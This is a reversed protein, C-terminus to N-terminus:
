TFFYILWPNLRDKQYEGIAFGLLGGFAWSMINGIEWEGVTISQFGLLSSVFTVAFTSFLAEGATLKVDFWDLVVDNPKVAAIFGLSAAIAGKMGGTKNNLIYSAFLNSIGGITIISLITILVGYCHFAFQYEIAARITTIRELLVLAPYFFVTLSIFDKISDTEHFISFFLSTPTRIVYRLDIKPFLPTDYIYCMQLLFSSIKLLQMIRLITFAKNNPKFLEMRQCLNNSVWYCLNTARGNYSCIPVTNFLIGMDVGNNGSSSSSSSLAFLHYNAGHAFKGHNSNKTMAWYYERYPFLAIPLSINIEIGPFKLNYTKWSNIFGSSTSSSSLFLKENGPNSVFLLTCIILIISLRKYSFDRLRVGSRHTIRGSSGIYRTPM